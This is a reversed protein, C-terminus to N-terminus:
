LRIPYLKDCVFGQEIETYGVSIYRFLLTKKREKKHLICALWQLIQGDRRADLAADAVIKQFLELKM